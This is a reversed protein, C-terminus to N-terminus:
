IPQNKQTQDFIVKLLANTKTFCGFKNGLMKNKEIDFRVVISLISFYIEHLSCKVCVLLHM